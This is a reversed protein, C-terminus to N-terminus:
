ICLVMLQLRCWLIISNHVLKRLAMSLQILSPRRSSFYDNTLTVSSLNVTRRSGILPPTPTFASIGNYCSSSCLISIVMLVLILPMSFISNVSFLGVAAGRRRRSISSYYLSHSANMKRKCNKMTLIDSKYCKNFLMKLLHEVQSHTSLLLVLIYQNSPLYSLINTAHLICLKCRQVKVASLKFSVM